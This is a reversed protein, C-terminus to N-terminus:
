YGLLRLTDNLLGRNESSTIAIIITNEIRSIVYYDGDIVITFRSFSPFDLSTSPSFTGRAFNELSNRNMNFVAQANRDTSYRAFGIQFYETEVSLFTELYEVDDYQYAVDEVVFGEGEMRSTFEEATLPVRSGFGLQFLLIIMVPIALAALLRFLVRPKQALVYVDTKALKDGIKTKTFILIFFDIMWLFSFLNRVFLKSLSPTVTPDVQERVAIGLIIKGPSQGKVMDKVAYLLFSALLVAVFIAGSFFPSILFFPLLVFTIIIIHDILFAWFRAWTSARKLPPKSVEEIQLNAEETTPNAGETILNVEETNENKELPINFNEM